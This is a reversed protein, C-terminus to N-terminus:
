NYATANLMNEADNLQQSQESTPAPPQYDRCGTLLLLACALVKKM